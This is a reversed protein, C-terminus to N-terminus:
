GGFTIEMDFTLTEIHRMTIGGEIVTDGTVEFTGTYEWIHGPGLPSLEPPAGIIVTPSNDTVTEVYSGGVWVDFTMGEVFVDFDAVNVITAVVTVEESPVPAAPEFVFTGEVPWALDGPDGIFFDQVISIGPYDGELGMTIHFEYPEDICSAPQPWTYRWTEGFEILFDADSSFRQPGEFDGTFCQEDVVVVFNPHEVPHTGHQTIDVTIAYPQGKFTIPRELGLNTTVVAGREPTPLDLARDLFSAMQGRTVPQDPCFRTNAPPNCGKTVGATGLKDIDTEFISTDDDTFHNGGGDDDYGLARVLFAAMQGRTVPQDPCFRTNAPPNCGKTVGATGLKDIDTEFISTDDDTFHNGGGDDDYGLARVLFAAMQGRTVPQDPCYRTREPPNCGTTIGSAAIAEISLEHISGDDDLFAGPYPEQGQAPNALVGTLTLLAVVVTRKGRSRMTAGRTILPAGGM